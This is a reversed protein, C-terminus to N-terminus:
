SGAAVLHEQYSHATGQAITSWNFRNAVEVSRQSLQEYASADYQMIRVLTAAFREVDGIPVLLEPLDRLLSRPGPSDYAVTPIGSALQELVAFGFGEAYSPFAGVTSDSLFKPLEDPQYEAVLDVFNHQPLALDRLVNRDETLTGLFVFRVEPVRERVRRIIEGWDKTGKRPNWTGVFSIKREALRVRAPAAMQEFARRREATLGYPQVIAPKDSGVEGRLFHVEDENPLNLLDSHQLARESAQFMRKKIFTYYVRGLFKGRPQDPWKDQAMREFDQYLRYLGVSRAVLLGAFGLRKKPFPLTGLLADIVDFRDANRRVFAAARRPFLLQRWASLFGSSTPAPYADMLCFKSVSHGAEQWAEALEIFVRAAGLRADWPLDVVVLIRLTREMVAIRKRM